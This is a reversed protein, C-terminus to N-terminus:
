KEVAALPVCNLRQRCIPASSRSGAEQPRGQCIDAGGFFAFGSLLRDRAASSVHGAAAEALEERLLCRDALWCTSGRSGARV